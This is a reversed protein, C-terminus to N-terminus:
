LIRCALFLLQMPAHEKRNQWPDKFSHAELIPSPNESGYRTSSSPAIRFVKAGSSRVQVMLWAWLQSHSQLIPSPPNLGSQAFLKSIPASVQFWTSPTDIWQITEYIHILVVTVGDRLRNDAWSPSPSASPAPARSINDLLWTLAQFSSQEKGVAVGVRQKYEEQGSHM